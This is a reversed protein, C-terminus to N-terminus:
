YPSNVDWPRHILAQHLGSTDLPGIGGSTAKEEKVPASEKKPAEEITSTIPLAYPLDRGFRALHARIDAMTIKGGDIEVASGNKRNQAPCNM